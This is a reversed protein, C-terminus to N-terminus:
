KRIISVTRTDQEWGVDAGFQEAIFRVPVYTSNGTLEPAAELEVQKGDVAVATSGITFVLKKGSWYDTIIAQRADNDWEVKADLNEAVFRVPVLTTGEGVIYPRVQEGPVGDEIPPLSVNKRTIKLDDMLMKYVNSSPELTKVFQPLAGPEALNFGGTADIAEAKVAKNIDWRDSTGSAKFGTVSGGNLDLGKVSLDFDTRRIQSDGDVYLDLKLTNGDIMYQAVDGMLAAPNDALERLMQKVFFQALSANEGMGADELVSNILATVGADDALLNKITTQLLGELESGKVEVHLKKLSLSEGNIDAKADSVSLSEPTPVYKLISGIQKQIIGELDMGSLDLPLGGPAADKEKASEDLILPKKADGALLVAQEGAVAVSFPITKSGYALEGKMSSTKKDQQKAETISLTANALSSLDLYGDAGKGTELEVKVKASGQYSEVAFAQQAVKDLDVGGVTQCGALLSFALSVTGGLALLRKKM